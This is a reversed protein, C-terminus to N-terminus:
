ARSVRKAARKVIRLLQANEPEECLLGMTLKEYYALDDDDTRCSLYDSVLRGVARGFVLSALGVNVESAVSEIMDVVPYDGWEGTVEMLHPLINTDTAEAVHPAEGLGFNDTARELDTAIMYHGLDHLAVGPCKDSGIAVTRTEGHYVVGAPTEVVDTLPTLGAARYMECVLQWQPDTSRNM